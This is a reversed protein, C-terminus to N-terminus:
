NLEQTKLFPWANFTQDRPDPAPGPVKLFNGIEVVSKMTHTGPNCASKCSNEPNTSLDELLHMSGSLWREPGQKDRPKETVTDPSPPSFGRWWVSMGKGTPDSRKRWLKTARSLYNQIGDLSRTTQTCIRPRSWSQNKNINRLAHNPISTCHFPESLCGDRCCAVGPMEHKKTWIGLVGRIFINYQGM